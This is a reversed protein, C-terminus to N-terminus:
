KSSILHLRTAKSNNPVDDSGLLGELDVKDSNPCPSLLLCLAAKM